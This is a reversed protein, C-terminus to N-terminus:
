NVVFTEFGKPLSALNLHVIFDNKLEMDYRKLKNAFNIM